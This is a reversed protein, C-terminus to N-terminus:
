ARRFHMPVGLRPTRAAGEFRCLLRLKWSSGRVFRLGSERMGGSTGLMACTHAMGRSMESSGLVSQSIVSEYADWAAWHTSDHRPRPEEAFCYIHDYMTAETLGSLVLNVDRNYKWTSADYQAERHDISSWVAVACESGQSPTALLHHAFAGRAARVRYGPSCALAGLIMGVFFSECFLSLLFSLRM